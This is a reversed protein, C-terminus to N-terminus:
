LAHKLVIIEPAEPLKDKEFEVESSAVRNIKAKGSLFDEVGSIPYACKTTKYHMPIIIRPKLQNCVQGAEKADITFFGGVPIFLIDIDGIEAAQQSSLRHGLDGLHCLKIGDVTFCFITNPGRERGGSADHYSEIGKFEIGKTIHSGAGTVIEPAGKIAAANNHDGHQHSIIVIDAAENIKGYDIGAGPAYPDIIIRTGDVATILFSAHGFWKVKM